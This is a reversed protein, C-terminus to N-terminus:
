PADAPCVVLQGTMGLHVVLAGGGDTDVLLYKAQRRIKLVRHGVTVKRIAAVDLPRGLRLPKGSTWLEGLTAGPRKRSLDRRLTEVEPLEPMTPERRRSPAPWRRSGPLTSLRGAGGDMSAPASWRRTSRVTPIPRGCRMACRREGSGSLRTCPGGTRRRMSP